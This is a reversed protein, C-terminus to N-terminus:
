PLPPMWYMSAGSCAHLETCFWRAQSRTAPMVPLMSTGPPMRPEVGPQGYKSRAMHMPSEFSIGFYSELLIKPESRKGIIPLSQPGPQASQM